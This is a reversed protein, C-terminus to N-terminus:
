EDNREPILWFTVFLYWAINTIMMGASLGLLFLIM